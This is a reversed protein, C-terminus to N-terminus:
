IRTAHPEWHTLRGAAGPQGENTRHLGLQNFLRGPAVFPAVLDFEVAVAGLHDLIGVADPEVGLGAYVPRQFIPRKSLLGACEIRFAEDDLTFHDDGILGSQGWASRDAM